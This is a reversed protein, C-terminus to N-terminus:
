IEIMDIPNKKEKVQFSNFRFWVKKEEDITLTSTFKGPIKQM